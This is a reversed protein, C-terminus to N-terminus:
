HKKQQTKAQSKQASAAESASREGRVTSLMKAIQEVVDTKKSDSKKEISIYGSKIMMRLPFNADAVEPNYGLRRTAEALEELRPDKVSRDKPVRRGDKRSISSNFYDVWLVLRKYDKM